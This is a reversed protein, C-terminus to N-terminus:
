KVLKQHVETYIYSCLLMIYTHIYAHINMGKVQLSIKQIRFSLQGKAACIYSGADDETVNSLTLSFHTSNTSALDNPLWSGHRIWGFKAVPRGPNTIHCVM